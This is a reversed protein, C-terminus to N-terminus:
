RDSGADDIQRIVRAVTGRFMSPEKGELERITDISEKAPEGIEGLAIIAFWTTADKPDAKIRNILQPVVPASLSGLRGISKAAEQSVCLNNSDMLKCIDSMIPLAAKGIRGLASTARCAQFYSRSQAMKLLQYTHRTDHPNQRSLRELRLIRGNTLRRHVNTDFVFVYSLIITMTTFVLIYTFIVLVNKSM